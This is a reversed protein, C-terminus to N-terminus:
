VLWSARRLHQAATTAAHSQDCGTPCCLSGLLGYTRLGRSLSGTNCLRALLRAAQTVKVRAHTKGTACCVKLKLKLGRRQQWQRKPAGEDETGQPRQQQLNRKRKVPGLPTTSVPSIKLKGLVTSISDPSPASRKRVSVVCYIWGNRARSTSRCGALQVGEHGPRGCVLQQTCPSQLQRGAKGM